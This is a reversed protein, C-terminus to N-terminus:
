SITVIIKGRSHHTESQRHAKRLGEEGFSYREGIVPKLKEQEVLRSIQTLQNGNSKMMFHSGEIGKAAAKEEDPKELTSVLRGGPKLVQFSKDQIEGGMTDLVMDYGSLIEEFSEEKYNIFHDVGLSRLLEEHTGSATSAVEAGLHKAIQIALTGVGGSGAHILVKDGPQVKGYDVLGQYATLGALPIAAAEAFDLEEPIVALESQDVAAYEAYTGNGSKQPAAYVRDGAKFSTVDSGTKRVIGAADGGLIVPFLGEKDEGLAGERRKWDIPNISTARLEVLVETPGLEPTPLDREQLVNADGFQDIVIAKM